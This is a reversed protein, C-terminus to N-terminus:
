TEEGNILVQQMEPVFNKGDWVLTTEVIGLTDANFRGILRQQANLEFIGDRNLDVPYLNALAGVECKLAERLKGNIDYLKSLYEDGKFQLDIIYKKRLNTSIVQAKYGDLYEADFTFNNNFNEFDFIKKPINEKFSYIYSLMYGGSGGSDICVLINDIRDGSFDVLEVSPKYGTNEKLNIANYGYDKGDQVLIAINEAYSSELGFPKDGILYINDIVGDGNVDGQKFDLIYVGQGNYYLMQRSAKFTPLFWNIRKSQCKENYM